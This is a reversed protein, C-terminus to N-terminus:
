VISRELFPQGKIVRDWSFPSLDLSRFGRYIILESLGRGTAPAQQLGHGSFGNAFYLNEIAPHCGLIMNQDLVNYAYHGAWYNRVKIAEFYSSRNALAPWIIDDFETYNPTFDNFDVDLDEKPTCGCIFVNGEPRCYVGTSDVMLPLLGMNVAASGQPSQECDFVFVTRKRPVVPM